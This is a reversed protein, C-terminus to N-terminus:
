HKAQGNGQPSGFGPTRPDVSPNALSGPSASASGQGSGASVHSKRQSGGGARSHASQRADRKASGSSTEAARTDSTRVNNAAPAATTSEVPKGVVRSKRAPKPLPRGREAAASPSAAKGHEERSANWGGNANGRGAPASPAGRGSPHAMPISDGSHGQAPAPRAHATTKPLRTTAGSAGAALASGATAAIASASRGAPQRAASAPQWAAGQRPAAQQVRAPAAKSPARGTAMEEGAVVTGGILLAAAGTAVAKGAAGGALLAKLLGLLGGGDAIQRLRKPELQQLGRALRRRARFILTEVASHSLGMEQGIEDYSLGKWERLLIAQRQAEPMRELAASLGMLEERAVPAPAAVVQELAELDDPREVRGRRRSARRRTRCVNQAIAYLWASELSPRVGRHLGRLANLFTTQTADEAEEPSGLERLCFRYIQGHYSEYLDSVATELSRASASLDDLLPAVSL